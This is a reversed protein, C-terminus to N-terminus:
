PPSQPGGSLQRDDAVSLLPLCPQNAVFKVHSRNVFAAAARSHTWRGLSIGTIERFCPSKGSFCPAISRRVPCDSLSILSKSSKQLLLYCLLFLSPFLSCGSNRSKAPKPDDEPIRLRLRPRNTDPSTLPIALGPRRCGISTFSAQAAAGEMRQRRKATPSHNQAAPPAPRKPHGCKPPLGATM